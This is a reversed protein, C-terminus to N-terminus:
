YTVLCQYSQITLRMNCKGVVSSSEGDPVSVQIDSSAEDVSLGAKEAFKQSIINVGAGSDVLIEAPVNGIKGNYQMVLKSRAVANAYLRSQPADHMVSFSCSLPAGDVAPDSSKGVPLVEGKRYVHVETMGPLQQEMPRQWTQPVVICASTDPHILHSASSTISFPKQCSHQLHM